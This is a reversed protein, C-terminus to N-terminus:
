RVPRTAARLVANRLRGLGGEDPAEANLRLVPETSSARLNFWSGDAFSATLGDTRDTAVAADGLSREVRAMAAAPDPVVLDIEQSAAYRVHGGVLESLPRDAASLEALVHLAALMGSDASWFDRFYYHGSHEAGFVAGHEAMLATVSSRGVRSRVPVGGQEEIVEAASRSTILDHVVRGGPEDALLRSAVLAIVSSAPVAEGREDVVLCRDADGDFALGLDADEARVRAKLDVVNAPKTPDAEHNPFAGDPEFYMPVVELLPHDLVLPATLGAMGNGADVVVKLPRLGSLDVLSRLYAAYDDLLAVRRRRGPVAAAPPPGPEALAARIRELGSGEAIPVAGARCLKVGNCAAPDHGATVMAGPIGLRGSVFSLHDTSGLGADVVDGGQELVGRVFADALLSSTERMDRVVAIEDAGTLAVFAAGIRHAAAEDLEQPALGRIDYATVLRAALEPEM